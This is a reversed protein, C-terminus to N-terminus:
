SAAGDEALAIAVRARRCIECGCAVYESAKDHQALYDKVVALLKVAAERELKEIYCASCYPEGDDGHHHIMCVPRDCAGCRRWEHNKCGPVHCVLRDAM